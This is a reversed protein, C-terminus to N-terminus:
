GVRRQQPHSIASTLLQALLVYLYTNVLKYEGPGVTIGSGYETRSPKDPFSNKQGEVTGIEFMFFPHQEENAHLATHGDLRLM